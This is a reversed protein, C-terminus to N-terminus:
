YWFVCVSVRNHAYSSSSSSKSRASRMTSTLPTPFGSANSKTVIDWTACAYVGSMRCATGGGTHQRISVYASTRQRIRVYASTHPRISPVSGRRWADIHV